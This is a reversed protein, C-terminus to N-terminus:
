LLRGPPVFWRRTRDYSPRAHLHEEDRDAAVAVLQIAFDRVLIGGARGRVVVAPEEAPEHALEAVREVADLAIAPMVFVVLLLVPPELPQLPARQPHHGFADGLLAQQPVQTPLVFGDENMRLVQGALRASPM